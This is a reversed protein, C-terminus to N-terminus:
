GIQYQHLMNMLEDVPQQNLNIMGLINLGWEPHEKILNLIEVNEAHSGVLVVTRRRENRALFNISYFQWLAQKLFILLTGVVGFMVLVTRSLQERQDQFVFIIGISALVCLGVSKLAPWLLQWPSAMVPQNYFGNKELLYPGLPLFLLYLWVYNGFPHLHKLFFYTGIVERLQYALYLSGALILADIMQHAQLRLEQRKRQM